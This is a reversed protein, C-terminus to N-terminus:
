EYLVLYTFLILWLCLKDYASCFAGSCDSASRALNRPTLPCDSGKKKGGGRSREKEGEREERGLIWSYPAQPLATLEEAPDAASGQDCLV